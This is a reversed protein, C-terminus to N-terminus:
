LKQTSPSIFQNGRIVENIALVLDTGMRAKTVYGLAGESFCANVFEGTEYVSLFVIKASSGNERLVRAAELGSCGPMMIDSVIIHPELRLAEQVLVRGNSATGVITFHPELVEIARELVAQHDDAILVRVGNSGSKTKEFGVPQLTPPDLIM